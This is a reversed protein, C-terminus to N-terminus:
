KLLMMKKSDTFDGATIRYMYIGSAVKTGDDSRSDWVVTHNGVDMVRDVLTRVKQGNINYIELTVHEARPISIMINTNPNFPNPYNQSLNFKDPLANDTQKEASEDSEEVFELHEYHIENSDNKIWIIFSGDTVSDLHNLYQLAIRVRTKTNENFEIIKKAFINMRYNYTTDFVTVSEDEKIEKVEELVCDGLEDFAAVVAQVDQESKIDSITLRCTAECDNINVSADGMGLATMLMQIKQDDMALDKNVGAIAVEYGIIRNFKLPVLTAVLLLLIIVGISIGLQPKRRLQHYIKAMINKEQLKSPTISDVRAEVRNKLASLSILDINDDVGATEFDRQLTQEAQVLAACDSCNRLHKILDNDESNDSVIGRSQILRQRAKHCRM